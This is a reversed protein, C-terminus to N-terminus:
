PRFSGQTAFPRQITGSPGQARLDGVIRYRVAGDRMAATFATGLAQYRFPLDLTVRTVERGPLAVDRGGSGRGLEDWQTASSDTAVELAYRVEQLRIGFRNPNDVDLAVRATAGTFGVDALTVAVVEVGPATFLASCATTAAALVTVWISGGLFRARGRHPRGGARKHGQDGLPVGCPSSAHDRRGTLCADSQM